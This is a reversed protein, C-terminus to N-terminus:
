LDPLIRERERRTRARWWWDIATAPLGAAFPLILLKTVGHAGSGASLVILGSVV